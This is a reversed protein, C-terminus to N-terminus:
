LIEEHKLYRFTNRIAKIIIFTHELNLNASVTHSEESIHETYMNELICTDTGLQVLVLVFSIVIKTRVHKVLVTVRTSLQLFCPLTGNVPFLPPEKPM